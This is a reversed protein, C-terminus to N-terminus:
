VSTVLYNYSLGAFDLIHTLNVILKSIFIYNEYVSFLFKYTIVSLTQEKSEINRKWYNIVRSYIKYKLPFRGLEGYIMVNPTSKKVCLIIKYFILHVQEIDELKEFGWIECCYLLIPLVLSDFLKFQIDVPM